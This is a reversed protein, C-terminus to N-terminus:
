ATALRRGRTSDLKVRLPRRSVLEAMREALCKECIGYNVASEGLLKAPVIGLKQKCWACIHVTPHM